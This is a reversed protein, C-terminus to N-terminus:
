IIVQLNGRRKITITMMKTMITIMTMTMMTTIIITITMMTKIMKFM